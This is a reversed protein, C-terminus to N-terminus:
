PRDPSAAIPDAALSALTIASASPVQPPVLLVPTDISKMVAAAVSGVRDVADLGIGRTGIVVLDPQHEMVFSVIGASVDANTVAEGRISVGAWTGGAERAFMIEEEIAPTLAGAGDGPSPEVHVARLAVDSRHPTELRTSRLASAWSLAVLLARRATESLDIPIVVQALPLRLPTKVVLCPCSAKRVVALATGGLARSRSARDRHPGLVIVDAHVREALSDITLAPDGGLLHITVDSPAIDCRKCLASLERSALARGPEDDDASTVHLLHLSAGAAASLRGATVMAAIGSDDLDTAVLISRLTLLRM